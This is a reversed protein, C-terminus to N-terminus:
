STCNWLIKPYACVYNLKNIFNYHISNEILMKHLVWKGWLILKAESGKMQYCASSKRIWYYFCEAWRRGSVCWISLHGPVHGIPRATNCLYSPRLNHLTEWSLMVSNLVIIIDKSIVKFTSWHNKEWYVNSLYVFKVFILSFLLFYIDPIYKITIGSLYQQQLIGPLSLIM